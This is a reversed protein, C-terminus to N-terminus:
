GCIWVFGIEDPSRLLKSGVLSAHHDMTWTALVLITIVLLPLSPTDFRSRRAFCTPLWGEEAM